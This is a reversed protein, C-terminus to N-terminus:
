YVTIFFINSNDRETTRTAHPVCVAVVAGTIGVAVTTSSVGDDVVTGDVSCGTEVTIGEGVGNVDLIEDVSPM